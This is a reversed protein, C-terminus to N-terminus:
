VVLPRIRDTLAANVGALAFPIVLTTPHFDFVAANWLLPSLVYAVVFAIRMWRDRVGIADLLPPMALFGFGFAIGQSAFFWLPSAALRYFPVFLVLVPSFHDAFIDWGVLQVYPARFHSLKWLAQEFIGLDYGASRYTLHRMTSISFVAAALAIACWM